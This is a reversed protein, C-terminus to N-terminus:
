ILSLLWIVIEGLMVDVRNISDVTILKRFVATGTSAEKGAFIGYRRM